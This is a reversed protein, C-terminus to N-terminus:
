SFREQFFFHQIRPLDILNEQLRGRLRNRDLLERYDGTGKQSPVPAIKKDLRQVPNTRKTHSSACM